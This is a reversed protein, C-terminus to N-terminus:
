AEASGVAQFAAEFMATLDANRTEISLGDLAVAIIRVGDKEASAVLCSGAEDTFGTKMGTAYPYYYESEPDIMPNSNEWTFTEGSLFTHTAEHKSCATRICAFSSAYAAIKMMDAATVYNELDHYGDPCSFHSGSAGLLRATHNMLDCFVSVAEQTSLTDDQAYLRGVGAAMVYAADNGSPLLLADLLMEFNLREGRELGAVSSDWAVLSLEDGVTFETDMTCLQAAVCATMLKTTSAPYCKENEGQAFLIKSHTADYLVLHPTTLASNITEVLLADYIGDCESDLFTSDFQERLALQEASPAYPVPEEQTMVPVAATDEPENKVVSDSLWACFVVAAFLLVIGTVGVTKKLFGPLKRGGSHPEM